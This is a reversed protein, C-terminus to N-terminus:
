GCIGKIRREVAVIAKLVDPLKGADIVNRGAGERGVVLKYPTFTVADLVAAKEPRYVDVVLVLNMDPYKCPYVALVDVRLRGSYGGRVAEFAAIPHMGADVLADRAVEFGLQELYGAIEDAEPGPTSSGELKDLLEDLARLYEGKRSNQFCDYHAVPGQGGIWYIRQGVLMEGGCLRCSTSCGV